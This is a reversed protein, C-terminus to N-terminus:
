ALPWIPPNQKVLRWQQDGTDDRPIIIIPSDNETASITVYLETDKLRILYTEDSQKIFEWYQQRNGGLPQQWLEVGPWPSSVPEFSKLTYMNKLLYTDEEM